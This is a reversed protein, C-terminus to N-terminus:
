SQNDRMTPEPVRNNNAAKNQQEKWSEKLPTLTSNTKQAVLIYGAGCYPWLFKGAKELWHCRDFWEKQLFPGNFCFSKATIDCLGVAALIQRLHNQSYIHLEDPLELDQKLQRGLGWLSVPNFGLLVLSGGDRLAQNASQLLNEMDSKQFIEAAHIMLVVDVSGAALQATNKPGVLHGGNELCSAMDIKQHHAFRSSDLWTDDKLEGIQAITNGALRNFLKTLKPQAEQYFYEGQVTKSWDQMQETLAKEVSQNDTM